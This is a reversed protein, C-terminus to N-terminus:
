LFGSRSTATLHRLRSYSLSLLCLNQGIEKHNAGARFPRIGIAAAALAWSAANPLKGSFLEEPIGIQLETSVVSGCTYGNSSLYRVTYLGSFIL